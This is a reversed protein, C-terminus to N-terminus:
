QPQDPRLGPVVGVLDLANYAGKPIKVEGRVEYRVSKVASQRKQWDALVKKLRPDSPEETQAYCSLFAGSMGLVWLPILTWIARNM